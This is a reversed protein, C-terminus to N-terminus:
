LNQVTGGALPEIVILGKFGWNFGM